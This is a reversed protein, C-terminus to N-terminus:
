CQKLSKAVCLVSACTMWPSFGELIKSIFKGISNLEFNIGYRKKLFPFDVGLGISHTKSGYFDHPVTKIVKFNSKRLFSQLEKSSFRYEAFHFYHKKFIRKKQNSKHEINKKNSFFSKIKVFLFNLRNIINLIPQTIIKRIINVTPTSLFILGNPKLVRYAEKLAPLPGDEFHEVVGMSIYADFYNDPYKLNLIDGYEIQLSSDYEKLKEIVFDNNDVGLINYGQKSLFIVWKGFSCGADIIKANKTLYTLFMIRPATEINCAELEQEIIRNSCIGDWLKCVPNKNIYFIKRM